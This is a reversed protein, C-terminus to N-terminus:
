RTVGMENIVMLMADDVIGRLDEDSLSEFFDRHKAAMTNTCIRDIILERDLGRMGRGIEVVKSRLDRGGEISSLDVNPSTGVRFSAIRCGTAKSIASMVSDPDNRLMRDMDGNGVFGLRVMDGGFVKSGIEGVVEGLTRGTVDVSLDHWVIGQTPVFRLDTVTGSTVTVVYAGKEGTEKFSRGQINGPYVVYPDKSLVQRKHIHGLAWYDVGRGSLDTLRCPAYAYGESVSDVDCHLCAITFIDQRGRLMAALNRKEHPESFSVGVVEFDGGGSRVTFSQPETGFEHVNAPYPISSDWSTESDHNGRCIFVPVKARELERVFSYRTAPTAYVDDYIDGSIVLADAGEDLVLDVIKGFSGPTSDRMTRGLEPDSDSVGKFRGGLHLDACHVFKFTNGMSSM